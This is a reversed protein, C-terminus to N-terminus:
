LDNRTGTDTSQCDGDTEGGAAGGANVPLIRRVVATLRALGLPKLLYDVAGLEAAQARYEASERTTIVVVPMKEWRGEERMERLLGFGNLRPMELDTIVLDFEDGSLRDLAQQGDNATVVECGIGELYRTTLLRLSPSDDVVLVRRRADARDAAGEGQGQGPLETRPTLAVLSESDVVFVVNGEGTLFAGTFCPHRALIAGLPKVVADRKQEVEDVALVVREGEIHVVVGQAETGVGCGLRRGVRCGLWSEGQASRVWERGEREEWVMGQLEVVQDVTGLPIALLQRGCRVVMMRDVALSLPLSLTFTTGQGAESRVKVSGGLQAVETRVADLGVGRGAVSDTSEATSLGPSFILDAVAEDGLSEDERVLGRKRAAALIKARDLGAGDDSVELVMRGSETRGRVTMRGTAAKGAARRVETSEIGHAVANRVLHLLSNFVHDLVLKDLRTDGGETVYEVDKGGQQTADRVARELRQWVQELPVMRAQTVENQLEETLRTFQFAEESFSGLRQAIQGTLVRADTAVEGLARALTEGDVEDLGDPAARNASRPGVETLLKDFHEHALGLDSRLANVERLKRSLRHRNVVLEGALNMLGDLRDVEVRISSSGPVNSVDEPRSVVPPQAVANTTDETPKKEKTTKIVAARRWAVVADVLPAGVEMAWETRSGVGRKVADRLADLVRLVLSSVSGAESGDIRGEVQDELVDELHHLVRGLPSWGVSNAAGKVGHALRYVNRLTDPEGAPAKEWRLISAEMAEFSERAEEKFAMVVEDPVASEVIAEPGDQTAEGGAAVPLVEAGTAETGVEAEVAFDPVATETEPQMLVGTEPWEVPPLWGEVSALFADADVAEEPEGWSSKDAGRAAATAAGSEATKEGTELAALFEQVGEEAGLESSREDFLVLDEALDLVEKLAQWAAQRAAEDSSVEVLKSAQARWTEVLSKSVEGDRLLVRGLGSWIEALAAKGEARASWEGAEALAQVETLEEEAERVAELRAGAREILDIADFNLVADAM